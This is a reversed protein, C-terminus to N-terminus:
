TRACGAPPTLGAAKAADKSTTPEKHGPMIPYGEPPTWSFLDPDTPKLIRDTSL